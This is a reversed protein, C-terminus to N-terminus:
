KNNIQGFREFGGTNHKHLHTSFEYVILLNCERFHASLLAIEHIKWM